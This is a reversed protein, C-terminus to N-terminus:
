VLAINDISYEPAQNDPKLYRYHVASADHYSVLLTYLYEITEDLFSLIKQLEQKWLLTMFKSMDEDNARDGTFECGYEATIDANTPYRDISMFQRYDAIANKTEQKTQKPFSSHYTKVRGTDLFYDYCKNYFWVAAEAWGAGLQEFKIDRNDWVTSFRKAFNPYPIRPKNCDFEVWHAINPYQDKEDLTVVCVSDGVPMKFSYEGDTIEKVQQYGYVARRCTFWKQATTIEQPTPPEGTFTEMRVGNGVVNLTQDLVRFKVEDYSPGAFLSPYANVTRVIFEDPTLIRKVM